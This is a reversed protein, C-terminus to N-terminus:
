KIGSSMFGRVIYKQAALYVLIMPLISIISGAMLLTWSSEYQGQLATLGLPLTRLDRDSIYLVPRLLENWNTIFAIVFLSALAPVALPLFIHRYIAFPSAGDITAAEELSSPVTKFFETLLFTGFAGVMLSPVILPLYTDLWGLRVMLLFEPIITVEIPILLTFVLVGFLVRKLPFNMRAFAFGALSCTVLQGVASTTAVFLSNGAYRLFDFQFLVEVYNAFPTDTWLLSPRFNPPLRFVDGPLKFSTILMWFFPFLTIFAFVLLFGYLLTNTIWTGIRRRRQARAAAVPADVRLAAAERHVDAM